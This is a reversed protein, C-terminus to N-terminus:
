TSKWCSSQLDNVVIALAGLLSLDVAHYTVRYFREGAAGVGVCVLRDIEGNKANEVLAVLANVLTEDAVAKPPKFQLLKLM